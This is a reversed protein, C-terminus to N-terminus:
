EKGAAKRIDIGKQLDDSAFQFNNVNNQVAAL